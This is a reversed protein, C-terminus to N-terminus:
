GDAMRVLFLTGLDWHHSVCGLVAFTAPPTCLMVRLPVRFAFLGAVRLQSCYVCFYLAHLPCCLFSTFLVDGGGGEKEEGLYGWSLLKQPLCLLCLFSSLRNQSNTTHAHSNTQTQAGTVAARM